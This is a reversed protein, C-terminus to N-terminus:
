ECSMVLRSGGATLILIACLVSLGIAVMATFYSRDIVRGGDDVATRRLRLFCSVGISAGVVTLVFMAGSLVPLMERNDAACLPKVLAYGVLLDLAVAFPGLLMSTWLLALGWDDWYDRAVDSRM